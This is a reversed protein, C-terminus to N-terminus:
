PVEWTDSSASPYCPLRPTSRVPVSSPGGTRRNEEGGRGQETRHPISRADLSGRKGGGGGTSRDLAAAECLGAGDNQIIWSEIWSIVHNM